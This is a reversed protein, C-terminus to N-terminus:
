GVGGGVLIMAITTVWYFKSTIWDPHDKTQHRMRYFGLLESIFGGFVGFLFGTLMDM